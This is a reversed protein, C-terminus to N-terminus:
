PGTGRQRRRQKKAAGGAQEHGDNGGAKGVTYVNMGAIEVPEEPMDDPLIEGTEPDVNAVKQSKKESANGRGGASTGNGSGSAGRGRGGAPKWDPDPNVILDRQTLGVAALINGLECGAHDFIFVRERGDRGPKQDISLSATKDDHCPCKAIYGKGSRRAGQFRGAVEKADM